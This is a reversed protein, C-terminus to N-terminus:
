TYLMSDALASLARSVHLGYLPQVCNVIGGGGGRRNWELLAAGVQIVKSNCARHHTINIQVEQM